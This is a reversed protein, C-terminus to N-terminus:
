ETSWVGYLAYDGVLLIYTAKWDWQVYEYELASYETRQVYLSCVTVVTCVPIRCDTHTHIRYAHIYYSSYMYTEKPLQM